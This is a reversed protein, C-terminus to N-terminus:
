GLRFSEAGVDHLYFRKACRQLVRKRRACEEGDSGLEYLTCLNFAVGETLYLRPDERILGELELVASRMDGSYLLCLSLGNLCEVTLSPDADFGLTPSTLDKWTPCRPPDIESSVIPDLQRQRSLADRFSSAAETYKGRAFLLLGENTTLRIPVQRVLSSESADVSPQAESAFRQVEKQITEAAAIAGSQLLILMQRSLLEVKAAAAIVAKMKAQEEVGVNGGACWSDVERAVGEDLGSLLDELGKLALRWERKRVFANVLANDIAPRWIEMGKTNWYEIRVARDRLDYLVDIAKSPGDNYQLQTAAILRLGFPVWSPLPDEAEASHMSGEKWALPKIPKDAADKATTPSGGEGSTKVPMDQDPLHPMLGLQGVEKGLDAYRRLKLQSVFRLAILEATERRLKEVEEGKAVTSADAKLGVGGGAAALLEGYCCRYMGGDNGLLADNTVRIVDGWARRGALTKTKELISQGQPLPEPRLRGRSLVSVDGEENGGRLFADVEEDPTAAKKKPSKSPSVQKSPSTQSPSTIQPPQTPSQKPPLSYPQQLPHAPQSSQVPPQSYAQYVPPQQKKAPSGGGGMAGSGDLPHMGAPGAPPLAVVHEKYEDAPADMGKPMVAPSNAVRASLVPDTSGGRSLVGPSRQSTVPDASGGRALAIPDVAGPTAPAPPAYTTAASSGGTPPLPQSPAGQMAPPQRRASAGASPAGGASGQLGRGPTLALKSKVLPPTGLGGPLSSGPAGSGAPPGAPISRIPASRFGSGGSGSGGSGSSSASGPRGVPPPQLPHAPNNSAM